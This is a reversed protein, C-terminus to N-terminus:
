PFPDNSATTPTKGDAGGPNKTPRGQKQPPEAGVSASTDTSTTGRVPGEKRHSTNIPRSNVLWLFLYVPKSFGQ